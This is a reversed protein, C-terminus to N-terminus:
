MHPHKVHMYTQTGHTCHRHFSSSLVVDGGVTTLRTLWWMPERRLILGLDEPIAVSERLGGLWRELGLRYIYKNYM